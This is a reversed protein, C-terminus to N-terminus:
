PLEQVDELRGGSSSAGASDDSDKILREVLHAIRKKLKGVDKLPELEGLKKHPENELKKFRTRLATSVAADAIEEWDIDSHLQPKFGIASEVLAYKDESMNTELLLLVFSIARQLNEASRLRELQAAKLDDLLTFMMDFTDDLLFTLSKLSRTSREKFNYVMKREINRLQTALLDLAEKIRRVEQRSAFHVDIHANLIQLQMPTTCTCQKTSYYSNVRAILQRAILGLALSDDSQLRYRNSSTGPAITVITGTYFYQFGIAGNGRSLSSVEGIFEPFLQSLNVVPENTKLIMSFSSSTEPSCLSAVLRIPVQAMRQLVRLAGFSNEYTVTITTELSAPTAKESMHIVSQVVRRDCLNVIEYYDERVVLPHHVEFTIQVRRLPTYPMIELSIRCMAHKEIEVALEENFPCPELHPSMWVSLSIESDATANILSNDSAVSKQLMKRYNTIEAEATEYNFDKTSVPPAVFLSPETGLFCGELSGGESLIVIVGELYQFNGRSIAVPSFSLQASWRLTTGEYVMLTNTETVTMAMLVGDPEIVYTHFCLVTYDLRKTYKLTFNDTLCHLNREGLVVIAMEMSSLTSIKIDLVAEGLNYKWDPQLNKGAVGSQQDAKNKDFEAIHQYRYCELVWGSNLTVFADNKAVYMLPNPLLYNTLNYSFTFTEQEYFLLTGDLCQVCLFDRGHVGGFPGVTLTAGLRKLDHEYVVNLACTDEDDTEPIHEISTKYVILKSPSLIALHLNQSGSVFKGVNLDIIPNELQSELILDKPQYGTLTKGEEIWKSSPKYIRLCGKHSGVIIVNLIDPGFLQAVLLSHNDFAENEGCQTAWWERTKFLSM